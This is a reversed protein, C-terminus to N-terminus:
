SSQGNEILSKQTHATPSLEVRACWLSITELGGNEKWYKTFNQNSCNKAKGMVYSKRQVM